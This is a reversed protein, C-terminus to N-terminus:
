LCPTASPINECCYPNVASAACAPAGTRASPFFCNQYINKVGSTAESKYDTKTTFRYHNMYAVTQTASINASTIWFGTLPSKIKLNSSKLSSSMMINSFLVEVPKSLSTGTDAVDPSISIINPPTLNINNTTNFNWSYNDVSPGGAVGDGNGDFSNSAMDVIGDFPLVLTEPCTTGCDAALIDTTITELAPLCYITENCSNTGCPTGLFEVTRYGNSIYLNGTVVGVGDSVVVNTNLVSIPNIAESFQMQIVINRDYTGSAVPIVSNIKPPTIDLFTSIEYSWTFGAIGLASTGDSAKLIDKTLYTSYWMNASASGIPAVPKFVYTMDDATKSAFVETVWPGLVINGSEAIKVNLSGATTAITDYEGSEMVGIVGGDIWDGLTGNGNSDAIITAPNMAQKFTVVIGTNRANGKSGPAPYVSEIIGGGLAGSGDDRERPVTPGTTGNITRNVFQVIAFSLLIIILGITTNILIKKAKDIKDPAGQSTMWIFGGYIMMSVAIIGLFGLLINVFKIIIDTLSEEVLGFTTALDPDLDVQAMVNSGFLFIGFIFFIALSSFLNKNKYGRKIM